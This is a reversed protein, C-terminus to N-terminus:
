SKKKQTGHDHTTGVSDGGKPSGERLGKLTFNEEERKKEGTEKAREGVPVGMIKKKVGNGRQPYVRLILAENGGGGQRGKNKKGGHVLKKGM